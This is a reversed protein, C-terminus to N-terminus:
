RMQHNAACTGGPTPTGWDYRGIAPYSDAHAIRPWCAALALMVCLLQLFSAPRVEATFLRKALM